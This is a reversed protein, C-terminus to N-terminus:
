FSLLKRCAVQKVGRVGHYGQIDQAKDCTVVSQGGQCQRVFSARELGGGKTFCLQIAMSEPIEMCIKLRQCATPHCEIQM